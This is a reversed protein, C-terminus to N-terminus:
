GDRLQMRGATARLLKGRGALRRYQAAKVDSIYTWEAVMETRTFSVTLYGRDTLNTYRLGDILQTLAAETALAQETSDIGLYAELGPSSVSPAALEVAVAAGDLAIENAWANHTDGALVVLNAGAAQAQALLQQREAPYGDWADLNYPLSGLQLLHGQDELLQREEASLSQPDAAAQQAIAALEAFAAISIQQTAIAAPLQMQGMLVQQGLVQWVCGSQLQRHLWERQAEGLLSRGPAHVAQGYSASDFEGEASIFEALQLPRDRGVLRTDLMSMNVLDGFRFSRQLTAISQEVLPRLPMWEGYAKIAAMLRDTYSGEGQNHNEADAFWADNAVEHDDWVCIMPHAQHMAKLDPDTRYQAYRTRYDQLTLLETPPAVTRGLAVADDSAYGDGGYEYLYDGLHVVADLGDLGAIDRYAHFFGAPYNSCSVVAIRAEEVDAAPLTKTRGSPSVSNLTLFRYFYRIGPQLGTADVKITYDNERLCSGADRVVLDHFDADRAVQWSVWVEAPADSLPTVRTWLIVRDTLPDGSAVGHEFSAEMAANCGTISAGIGSSVIASGGLQTARALFRRRSISSASM